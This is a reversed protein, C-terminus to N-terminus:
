KKDDDDEEQESGYWICELRCGHMLIHIEPTDGKLTTSIMTRCTTWSPTHLGLTGDANKEWGTDIIMSNTTFGQAIDAETYIQIIGFWTKAIPEGSPRVGTFATHYYSIVTSDPDDDDSGCLFFSNDLRMQTKLRKIVGTDKSIIAIDTRNPKRMLSLAVNALVDRCSGGTQHTKAGHRYILWEVISDDMEDRDPAGILWTRGYFSM